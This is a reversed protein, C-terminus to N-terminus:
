KNYTTTITPSTCFTCFPKIVSLFKIFFNHLTSNISPKYFSFVHTYFLDTKKYQPNQEYSFGTKCLKNAYNQVIYGGSEPM